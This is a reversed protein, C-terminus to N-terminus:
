VVAEYFLLYVNNDQVYNGFKTHPGNFHDDDFTIWQNDNYTATATYHGSDISNGWHDIWSNLKYVKERGKLDMNLIEPFKLDKLNIKGGQQSPNFLSLCFVLVDPLEILEVTRYAKRERTFIDALRNYERKEFDNLPITYPYPEFDHDPQPTGEHKSSPIPLKFFKFKSKPKDKEREKETLEKIKHQAMYIDHDKELKSQLVELEKEAKNCGDCDWANGLALSMEEPVFNRKIIEELSTKKNKISLYIMISTEYKVSEYGCRQCRMKVEEQINFLNQIFSFGENEYSKQLWSNYKENSNHPFNILNLSVAKNFNFKLEKHLQDIIYYLFQSTDQQENPINYHPNLRAVVSLFRTMDIVPPSANHPSMNYFNTFLEHVGSTLKINQKNNLDFLYKKLFGDNIFFERFKKISFLCQIMSNIYCTSGMNRLTVLPKYDLRSLQYLSTTNTQVSKVLPPISLPRPLTSQNMQNKLKHQLSQQLSTQTSSSSPNPTSSQNNTYTSIPILPEAMPIPPPPSNAKFPTKAPARHTIYYKEFSTYGGKLWYVNNFHLSILLTFLDTELHTIYNSKSFIVIKNQKQLYPLVNLKLFERNNVYQPPVTIITKSSSRLKQDNINIILLENQFSALDKVEVTPITTSEESSTSDTDSLQVPKSSPIYEQFTNDLDEESQEDDDDDDDDNDENPYLDSSSLSNHKARPDLSKRNNTLNNTHNNLTEEITSLKDTNDVIQKIHSFYVSYTSLTTFSVLKQSLININQFDEKTCLSSNIKLLKFKMILYFMTFSQLVVEEILEFDYSSILYCLNSSIYVWDNIIKLDREFKPDNSYANNLSQIRNQFLQTQFTVISEIVDDSLKLKNKRLPAQLSVRRNLKKQREM